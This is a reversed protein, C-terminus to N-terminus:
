RGRQQRAEACVARVVEATAPALPLELAAAPEFWAAAFTTGDLEDRLEGADVAADYVLRVSHMAVGDVDSVDSRVERLGALRVALGTEEMVERRAADEPHEGHEVGGGPLWWTNWRSGQVLLLGGEADRLVAYAAIRQATGDRM